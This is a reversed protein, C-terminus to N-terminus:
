NSMRAHEIKMCKNMVVCLGAKRAKEAAENQALGLQMWVCGAKVEIADDVIGPIADVNRFIDVIDIHEPIEKLTPYCTEGLVEKYKPNVPIIKYGHDKLYKAVMHSDREEKHSIGVVAVTKASKLIERVEQNTANKEPIECGGM